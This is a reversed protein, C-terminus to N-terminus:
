ATLPVESRRRLAAGLLLFGSVMTLWTAPEPVTAAFLRYIDGNQKTLLYLEGAADTGLRLDVRGRDQGELALMSTPAGNFQLAIESVVATGGVGSTDGPTFYFLRGNVLDAMVVKGILDPIASGRYAIAASIAAGEDHDYQAIPDIYGGLNPADTVVQISKDPSGGFTGERVSWGYDGGKM